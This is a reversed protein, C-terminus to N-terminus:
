AFTTEIPNSIPSCLCSSSMKVIIFFVRHRPIHLSWVSNSITHPYNKTYLSKTNVVSAKLYLLKARKLQIQMSVVIVDCDLVGIIQISVNFNENSKIAGPAYTTSINIDGYIEICEM